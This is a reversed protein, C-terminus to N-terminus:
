EVKQGEVIGLIKKWHEQTIKENAAKILFEQVLDLSESNKKFIQSIFAAGGSTARMLLIGKQDRDVGLLTEMRRVVEQSPDGVKGNFWESLYSPSLGVKEAFARLSWDKAGIKEKIDQSLQTM